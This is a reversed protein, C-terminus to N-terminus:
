GAKRHVHSRINPHKQMCYEPDAHHRREHQANEVESFISNLLNKTKVFKKIQERVEDKNKAHKIKRSANGLFCISLIIKQKLKLDCIIKGGFTQNFKRQAKKVEMEFFDTKM